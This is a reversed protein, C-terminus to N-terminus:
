QAYEERRDSYLNVDSSLSPINKVLPHMEVASSMSPRESIRTVAIEDKIQLIRADFEKQREMSINSFNNVQDYLEDPTITLKKNIESLSKVVVLAIFLNFLTLILMYVSLM